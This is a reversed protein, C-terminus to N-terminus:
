SGQEAPRTTDALKKQHEILESELWAVRNASIKIRKPFKGAKELRCVHVYTWPFGFKEKLDPYLAYKM